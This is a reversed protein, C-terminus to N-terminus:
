RSADHTRKSKQWTQFFRLLNWVVMLFALYSAYRFNDGRPDPYSGATSFLLVGATLWVLVLVGNYILGFRM